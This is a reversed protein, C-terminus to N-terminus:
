TLLLYSSTIILLCIMVLFPIIVQLWNIIKNVTFYQPVQKSWDENAVASDGFIKPYFHHRQKEHFAATSDLYQLHTAMDTNAINSLLLQTHMTPMLMSAIASAQQRQLLKQQMAKADTAAEADGLHQMAYYWMYDFTPKSWTCNKYQPYIAFFAAMTSDKNKDWKTHYGDRQKILTNYAEKVPYKATIYNNVLAPILMCLLLWISLLILANSSTSKQLAIIFFCIAFWTTIYLVTSILYAALAMNIPIGIIACALLLLLAVLAMVVAYRISVKQVIYQLPKKAQVILLKWTGHEKEESLLNFCFAIILLPFLFIIIFSMDFNGTMLHYPNYLDTDYRQAEVGRITLSQITTNVDQQGIALAAIPAPKNIYAFKLYYLLLGIENKIYSANRQIHEKQFQTVSAIAADQKQLFQKGIIISVIGILLYFLTAVIVAKSRVFNLLALRYM